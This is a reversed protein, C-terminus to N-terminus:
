SFDGKQWKLLSNNDKTKKLKRGTHSLSQAQDCEAALPVKTYKKVKQDALRNGEIGTHGLIYQFSLEEGTQLWDKALDKFQRFIKQSTSKSIYSKNCTLCLNDLCIRIQPAVQAMSSKLGQKLGELMAIVEANYVKNTRGM